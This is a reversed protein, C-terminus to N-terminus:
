IYTELTVDLHKLLLDPPACAVISDTAPSCPRDCGDAAVSAGDHPVTRTGLTPLRRHLTCIYALYTIPIPGWAHANPRTFPPMSGTPARSPPSASSRGSPTPEPPGERVGPRPHAFRTPVCSPPPAPAADPCGPVLGEWKDNTMSM